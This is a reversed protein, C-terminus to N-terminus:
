WRADVHSALENLFSDNQLFFNLKGKYPGTTPEFHQCLFYGCSHQAIKIQTVNQLLDKGTIQSM